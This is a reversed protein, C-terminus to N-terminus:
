TVFPSFGGAEIGCFRSFHALGSRNLLSIHKPTTTAITADNADHPL